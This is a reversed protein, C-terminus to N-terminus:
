VRKCPCVHMQMEACFFEHADVVMPCAGVWHVCTHMCTCALVHQLKVSWRPFFHVKAQKTKCSQMVERLFVTSLGLDQATATLVTCLTLLYAPAFFSGGEDQWSKREVKRCLICTYLAFSRVRPGLDCHAYRQSGVKKFTSRTGRASFLALLIAEEVEIWLM